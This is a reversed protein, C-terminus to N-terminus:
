REKTQSRGQGDIIQRRLKAIVTPIDQHYVESWKQPLKALTEEAEAFQGAEALLHARQLPIFPYDPFVKEAETLLELAKSINKDEAAMQALQLYAAGYGPDREVAQALAQLAPELQKNKFLVQFLDYHAAASEPAIDVLQKALEEKKSESFMDAAYLAEGRVQWEKPMDSELLQPNRMLEALNNIVFRVDLSVAGEITSYSLTTALPQWNLLRLREVTNRLLGYVPTKIEDDYLGRFFGMDIHLVLPEPIDQLMQYHLAEFPIGHINGSYTGNSFTLGALEQDTLIEKEELQSRFTELNLQEPQVKSPFVWYIKSLLGVEIAASVAQIPLILPEATNFSGHKHLQEATASGALKRVQEKLGADIKELLPNFSFLVLAPKEAAETRWYAIAENPLELLQPTTPQHFLGSGQPAAVTQSAKEATSPQEKHQQPAQDCGSVFLPLLFFLLIRKYM